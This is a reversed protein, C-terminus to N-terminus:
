LHLFETSNTVLSGVSWALFGDEFVATIAASFSSELLRLIGYYSFSLSSLPPFSLSLVFCSLAPFSFFYIRSPPSRVAGAAKPSARPTGSPQPENGAADGRRARESLAAYDRFFLRAPFLFSSPFFLSDFPVIRHRRGRHREIV